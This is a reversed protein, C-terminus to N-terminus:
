TPLQYCGQKYVVMGEQQLRELQVDVSIDEFQLLKTHLQERSYSDEALVRIIAGRIQRDSGHFVSQKVYNKSKNINNGYEKKVHSGYDMLAWYWQRPNDVSLTATVIKVLEKDTVQQKDKFFHHIYVTRINTELIPVPKNYAFAMIAGATYPGIGPLAVLQDYEKPFVGKHQGVVVQACELMKKARRNYGLGQWLKLVDALSAIALKQVTPYHKMFEKYKPTVRDVQTQQLMVESVFVQYANHKNRWLLTHRGAKHYFDWVTAIFKQEKKTM